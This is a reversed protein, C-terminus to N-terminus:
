GTATQSEDRPSMRREAARASLPRGFLFGQGLDCRLAALTRAQDVTEVGEAVVTLGLNRAMAITARVQSAAAEDKFMRAILSRDIKLTDFPLERLQRISAHGTGFNDLAIRVGRAKLADLVLRAADIDAVLAGETLEVELREAPFGCGDIVALLREALTADSLQTPSINLSLHADASWGAADRCARALLSLTLAEIAGSAEAVPIFQDPPIEGREDHRWRALVEYGQVTRDAFRIVPQYSPTIREERIAAWLDHEFLAREMVREAMGPKFFAFWGRTTDKARRMALEARHILTEADRGDVAGIAIGGTASVTVTADGVTVPAEIATLLASMWDILEDETLRPVLIAFADGDLRGVFGDVGARMNLLRGMAILLEDGAPRGHMDNFARFRDINIVAVALQQNEGAAGLQWNMVGKFHRRNPLGTLQDHMALRQAREDAAIQEKLERINGAYRTLVYLTIGLTVFIVVGFLRSLPLTVHTIVLDHLVGVVDLNVALVSGAAIFGALVLVDRRIKRAIPDVPKKERPAPATVTRMCPEIISPM